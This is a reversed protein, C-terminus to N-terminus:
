NELIIKIGDEILETDHFVFVTSSQQDRLVKPFFNLITPSGVKQLTNCIKSPETWWWIRRGSM